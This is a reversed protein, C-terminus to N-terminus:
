LSKKRALSLENMRKRLKMLEQTYHMVAETSSQDEKILMSLEMSEKELRRIKLKYLCDEAFKDADAIEMLSIESVLAKMNENDQFAEILNPVNLVGTEELEQVIYEYLLIIDQNEFLDISLSDNLIRHIKKQGSMYLAIIGCEAKFNATRFAPTAKQPEEQQQGRGSQFRKKNRVIRNLQGVLLNENIQLRDALLHIYLGTKVKNQLEALEELLSQIFEERQELSPRPHSEQFIDIRFEAPSTKKAILDLFARPGHEAVFSDPDDKAPLAVIYANLDAMELIHATRVAAKRGADDGDYAIQVENSYRRILRAQDSTLATGSSAVVNKIGAEHLRLLDFYGEVLIVYGKERISLIAQHLGYLIKGKQYVPSEPSNLYKPQQEEQLKRGGFGIIKGSINFFPFIVRHRFKDYYGGDRERKQLLGLKAAESLDVKNKQLLKLLADFSNPAYGLQFSKITEPSIGREIFYQLHTKYISKHLNKQFFDGAMDNIQYLKQFYSTERASKKEKPLVIGAFDAAKRVAEIFSLKEYDMIFSYVNGGKSCGFCHFIQKDPSVVFSPTKETHFPCLGKFNQGAKKLNVFQGIYHVINVSSRVEDIKDESLRSM